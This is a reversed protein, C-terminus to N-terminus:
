ILRVTIRTTTGLLTIPTSPGEFSGEGFACFGEELPIRVNGDPVLEEVQGTTGNVRIRGIAPHNTETRANCELSGNPHVRFGVGNLLFILLTINPLRGSYGHFRIHWPLTENRITATGGRCTSNNVSARTVYGVLLERTKVITASHFSGEITVPCLVTEAGTNNKLQLSTWTTRFNQNTISLRNATASSVAIALMATATISALLLKTYRHM